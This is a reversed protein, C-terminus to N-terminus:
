FIRPISLSFTSIKKELGRFDKYQKASEKIFDHVYQHLIPNTSPKTTEVLAKYSAVVLKRIRPKYETVLEAIDDRNILLPLHKCLNIAIAYAADPRNMAMIRPISKKHWRELLRLQYLFDDKDKPVFTVEQMFYKSYAQEYDDPSGTPIFAFKPKEMYRRYHDIERKREEKEKWKQRFQREERVKQDIKQFEPTKMAEENVHHEIVQKLYRRWTEKNEENVYPPFLSASSIEGSVEEIELYWRYSKYQLEISM